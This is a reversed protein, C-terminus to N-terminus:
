SPETRETITITWDGRFRAAHEDAECRARRIAENRDYGRAAYTDGIGRGNEWIRPLFGCGKRVNEIAGFEIAIRGDDHTSM